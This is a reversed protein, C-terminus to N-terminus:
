RYLADKIILVISRPVPPDEWPTNRDEEVAM